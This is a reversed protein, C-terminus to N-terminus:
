PVTSFITTSFTKKINKGHDSEVFIGNEVITVASQDQMFLSTKYFCCILCLFLRIKYSNGIVVVRPLQAVAVFPVFPTRIKHYLLVRLRQGMLGMATYERSYCHRSRIFILPCVVTSEPSMWQQRLQHLASAITVTQVRNWLNCLHAPNSESFSFVLGPLGKIGYDHESLFPCHREALATGLKQRQTGPKQNIFPSAIFILPCVELKKPSLSGSIVFRVM